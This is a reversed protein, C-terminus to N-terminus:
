VATKVLDLQAQAAAWDEAMTALLDMLTGTRGRVARALSFEASKSREAVSTFRRGAEALATPDVGDRGALWECFSGATEAAAGCQRLTAFAYLHFVADGGDRLLALDAALQDKMRTVPNDAPRRALHSALLGLAIGTQEDDTPRRLCDLLVVEIYPHKVETTVPADPGALAFVGDFDEGSLEFYGANHFYEMRRADRDVLNPVITSKVHEIGYSVGHTDPLFWSDAEVTLFRGRAIHDEVTDLTPRWVNIEHVEIGYAARLDEAPYKYFTWQDGEFDTSIPFAAAVLPDLGLAHLIELWVDVYCNTETWVRDSQHLACRDYTAIDLPLVRVTM